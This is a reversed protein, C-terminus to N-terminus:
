RKSFQFRKRAKKQGFKKREVMRPDRTLLGEPKLARFINEFGLRREEDNMLCNLCHSDFILDYHSNLFFDPHVISSLRYNIQSKPAGEIANKSFDLATVDAELNNVDEFLSYHGAGLDLITLHKQPLRFRVNHQFLELLSKSYSLSAKSKFFNEFYDKSNM